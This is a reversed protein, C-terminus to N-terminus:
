IQARDAERGKDEVEGSGDRGTGLCGCVEVGKGLINRGKFARRRDGRRTLEREHM